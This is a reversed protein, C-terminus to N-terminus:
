RNGPFTVQLGATIWRGPQILNGVDTYDADFLNASSIYILFRRAAYSVKLDTIWYPKFEATFTSGTTSDYDVYSGNRVLYNVQMGASIARTFNFTTHIGIKYKLFDLSYKSVFDGSVKVLNIASINAGLNNFHFQKKGQSYNFDGSLEIGQTTIEAINMAKFLNRESLWVWDIVQKGQDRFLTINASIDNYRFEAGSEFAIL